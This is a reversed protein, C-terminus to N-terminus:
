EETSEPDPIGNAATQEAAKSDKPRFLLKHTQRNITGAISRTTGGVKKGLGAKAATLNAGLKAIGRDKPIRIKGVAEYAEEEILQRVGEMAAARRQELEDVIPRVQSYPRDSNGIWSEEKQIADITKIAQEMELFVSHELGTVRVIHKIVKRETSDYDANSFAITLLDWVLLRTGVGTEDEAATLERDIGELVLEYTDEQDIGSQLQREAEEAIQERYESFHDADLETGIAEFCAKEEETVAGDAAMLYYFIKLAARRHLMM